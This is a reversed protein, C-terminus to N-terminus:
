AYQKLVKEFLRGGFLSVYLVKEKMRVGAKNMMRLSSTNRSNVDIIIKDIKYDNLLISSIRGVMFPGVGMGRFKDGTVIDHILGENPMLKMYMRAIIPRQTTNITAWISGVMKGDIAAFFGIEKRALKDQYESVRSADRFDQVRFCNNLTIQLFSCKMSPEITKFDNMSTVIFNNTLYIWFVKQIKKTLTSRLDRRM